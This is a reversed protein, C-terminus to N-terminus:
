RGVKNQNELRIKQGHNDRITRQNGSTQINTWYGSTPHLVRGAPEQVTPLSRIPAGIGQTFTNSNVSPLPYTPCLNEPNHGLPDTPDCPKANVEVTATNLLALTLLVVARPSSKKFSSLAM